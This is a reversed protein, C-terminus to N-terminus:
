FASFFFQRVWEQDTMESANIATAGYGEGDILKM